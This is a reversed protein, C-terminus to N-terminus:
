YGAAHVFVGPAVGAASALLSLLLAWAAFGLGVAILTSRDDIGPVAARVAAISVLFWAVLTILGIAFAIPVFLLALQGIGVAAALALPRALRLYDVQIECIRRLAWWSVGASLAWAGVGALGGLLVLRLAAAGIDAGDAALALWFWAGLGAALASLPVLLLAARTDAAREALEGFVALEGRLLRRLLLLSRRADAAARSRAGAAAGASRTPSQFSFPHPSTRSMAQTTHLGAAAEVTRHPM